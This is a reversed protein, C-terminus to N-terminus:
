DRSKNGFCWPIIRYEICTTPSSYHVSLQIRLNRKLSVNQIWVYGTCGECSRRLCSSCTVADAASDATAVHNQTHTHTHTHTHTRTLSLVLFSIKFGQVANTDHVAFEMNPPKNVFPTQVLIEINVGPPLWVLQLFTNENCLRMYLQCQM